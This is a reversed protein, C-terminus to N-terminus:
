TPWVPGKKIIKSHHTPSNSALLYAASFAGGVGHGGGRFLIPLAHKCGLSAVKKRRPTRFHMHCNLMYAHALHWRLRNSDSILKMINCLDQLLGHGPIRQSFLSTIVLGREDFHISTSVYSFNSPKYPMAAHSAKLSEVVRWCGCINARVQLASM